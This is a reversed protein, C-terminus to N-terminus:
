LSCIVPEEDPVEFSLDGKGGPYLIYIIHVIIIYNSYLVTSSIQIVKYTAIHTQM